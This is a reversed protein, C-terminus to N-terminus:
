AHLMFWHVCWGIGLGYVPQLIAFSIAATADFKAEFNVGRAGLLAFVLLNLGAAQMLTIGPVGLPTVFWGWLVSLSYGGFFISLLMCVIVAIFKKM